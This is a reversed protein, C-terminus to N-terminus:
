YRRKSVKLYRKSVWGCLWLMLKMLTWIPLDAWKRELRQSVRMTPLVIGVCLQVFGLSHTIDTSSMAICFQAKPHSRNSSSNSDCVFSHLVMFETPFSASLLLLLLLLWMLLMLLQLM